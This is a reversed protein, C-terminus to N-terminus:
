KLVLLYNFFTKLLFMEVRKILLHKGAVFVSFVNGSSVSKCEVDKAQNSELGFLPNIESENKCACGSVSYLAFRKEKSKCHVLCKFHSDTIELDSSSTTFRICGLYIPQDVKIEIPSFSILGGQTTEAKISIFKPLDTINAIPIIMPISESKETMPLTIEDITNGVETSVKLEGSTTPDGPM